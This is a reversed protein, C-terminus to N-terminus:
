PGDGGKSGLADRLAQADRIGYIGERRGRLVEKKYFAFVDRGEDVWDRAVDADDAIMQPTYGDGFAEGPGHKRLYVFDATHPVGVALRDFDRKEMGPALVQIPADAVVIACNARELVGYVDTAFWSADRFEFAHRARGALEFESLAGLFVKLRNADGGFGPPLQWLISLLRPSLGEMASFFRALFQETGDLRRLHTIARHGKVCFGFTEPTEDMWRSITKQTPLRYFTADLECSDFRSSYFRLRERRPLDTPYFRGRWQDYDYGATGVWLRGAM